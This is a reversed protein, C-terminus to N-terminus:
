ETELVEDVLGWSLATQADQWNDFLNKAKFKRMTFDPKKVQIRALMIEDTRLDKKRMHRRVRDVNEIHDEVLTMTGAHFMIHSHKTIVRWDAAQLFVAGASAAEGVVKITVHFDAGRVLDYMGLCVNVDGGGSNLLVTVPDQKNSFLQFALVLRELLDDDFGGNLLVTRTALDIKHNVWLDATDVRRTM